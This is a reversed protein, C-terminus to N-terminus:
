FRITYSVSPIIPMYGYTKIKYKDDYIGKDVIAYMTNLHCYVNYISINWIREHGHKTTHHLDIGIDLRHYLPMSITNPKEYFYGTEGYVEGPLIPLNIYQTPLTIRNGSHLNWSAYLAMKRGAKYRLNLNVKHRNDFKDYFRYNM